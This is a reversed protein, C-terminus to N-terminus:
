THCKEIKKTCKQYLIYKKLFVAAPKKERGGNKRVNETM